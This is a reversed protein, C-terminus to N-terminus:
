QINEYFTMGLRYFGPELAGLTNGWLLRWQVTNEATNEATYEDSFCGNELPVYSGYDKEPDQIWKEIWFDPKLMLKGGRFTGTWYADLNVGTKTAQDVSLTVNGRGVPYTRSASGMFTSTDYQLDLNARDIRYKRTGLFSVEDEVIHYNRDAVISEWDEPLPQDGTDPWRDNLWYSATDFAAGDIVTTISEISCVSHATGDKMVVHFESTFYGQWSASDEYKICGNNRFLDIVEEVSDGEYKRYPTQLDNLNVFEVYAVDEAKLNAMWQYSKSDQCTRLGAIQDDLTHFTVPAEETVDTIEHEKMEEAIETEFTFYTIEDEIDSVTGCGSLSLLIILLLMLRSVM